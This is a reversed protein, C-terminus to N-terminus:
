AQCILPEVLYLFSNTEINQTAGPLHLQESSNSFAAAIQQLWAPTESFRAQIAEIPEGLLSLFQEEDIGDMALREAFYSDKSFPDQEHWRELRNRALDTNVQRNQIPNVGALLSAIREKLDIARYWDATQFYEQNM